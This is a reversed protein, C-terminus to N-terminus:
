AFQGSRYDSFAQEIEERTTMVFPGGKVIPENLPQASVLLFESDSNAKITVNDGSSLVGLQKTMLTNRSDGILMEGEIQYIFAHHQEPIHQQFIHGKDLHIHLYYPQTYPTTVLGATGTDSIGAIVKMTMGTQQESPILQRSFEQYQPPIMKYQAPLNIWLQFGALLGGEQEPMESHIIGKGATMWQIDGQQIIGAHGASDKHRLKGAHMYTITEFGRHPHPPFGAIYDQPTDSGFVDFLLFPDLVNLDATGIYRSLQVGAGDYVQTGTIVQRLQRTHPLAPM